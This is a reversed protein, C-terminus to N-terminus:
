AGGRERYRVQLSCVVGGIDTLSADVEEGSFYSDSLILDDVLGGLSRDAELTKEIDDALDAAAYMAGSTSGDGQVWGILTYSQRRTYATLEPGTESPRGEPLVMVAPYVNPPYTNGVYVRPTGSDDDLDYNYGGAVTAAKIATVVGELISRRASGMLFWWM